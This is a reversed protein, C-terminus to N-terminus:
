FSGIFMTFDLFSRMMEFLLNIIEGYSAQLVVVVGLFIAIPLFRRSHQIELTANSAFTRSLFNCVNANVADYSLEYLWMRSWRPLWPNMSLSERFSLGRSQDQIVQDAFLRGGEFECLDSIDQTPFKNGILSSLSKVSETSSWFPSAKRTQKDAENSAANSTPETRRRTEGSEVSATAEDAAMLAAQVAFYESLVIQRYASGIWPTNAFAHIRTERGGLLFLIGLIGIFWSVTWPLISTMMKLNSFTFAVSDFPFGDNDGAIALYAQINQTFVILSLIALFTTIGLFRAGRVFRRYTLRAISKSKVFDMLQPSGRFKEGYGCVSQVYTTLESTPITNADQPPSTSRTKQNGAPDSSWDFPSSEIALRRFELEHRYSISADAFLEMLLSKEFDSKVSTPMPQNM